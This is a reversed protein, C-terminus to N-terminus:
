AWAKPLDSENWRFANLRKYVEGKFACLTTIEANISGDELSAILARAKEEIENYARAVEDICALAREREEAWATVAECRRVWEARTAEADCKETDPKKCIPLEYDGWGELPIKIEVKSPENYFRAPSYTMELYATKGDWLTEAKLGYAPAIVGVLRANVHKGDLKELLGCDIMARVKTVHGRLEEIQHALNAKAKEIRNATIM